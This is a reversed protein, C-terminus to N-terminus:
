IEPPIHPLLSVHMNEFIHLSIFEMHSGRRFFVNIKVPHGSVVNGLVWSHSTNETKRSGRHTQPVDQATQPMLQGAEKKQSM